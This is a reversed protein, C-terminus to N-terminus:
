TRRGRCRWNWDREPGVDVHVSSTHCYTGVGGRGQMTRAYNALEWKSVGPVQIDAAACYMHQSNKAGRVRRNYTPSRYGSTIVVKKGFRREITKLVRVLSPKLCAVDVSERQKLLGNPSLRALGGAMAVDIPGGGDADEHLDVDSDDDIGSKRKIEFLASQRVGPLGSGEGDDAFASARATRIEPMQKTTAALRGSKEGLPALNEFSLEPQKEETTQRASAALTPKPKPDAADSSTSETAALALKTGAPQPKKGAGFFSALLSPPKKPTDAAPEAGAEATQSEAAAAPPAAQQEPKAADGTTAVNGEGSKAEAAAAQAAQPVPPTNALDSTEASGEEAKSTNDDTAAALATRDSPTETVVTQSATSFSQNSNEIGGEMTPSCAVVFVSALFATTCRFLLRGSQPTAENLQNVKGRLSPDRWGEVIGSDRRPLTLWM